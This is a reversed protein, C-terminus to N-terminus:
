SSEGILKLRKQELLQYPKSAWKATAERVAGSALQQKADADSVFSRSGSPEKSYM